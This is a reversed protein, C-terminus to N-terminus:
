GVRYRQVLAEDLQLGFGPTEPVRMAGGVIPPRNVWLEQWVPDREPDAFCEVFSGHPIGSLMHLAIQPEEHHAIRVGSLACAAAARRWETIGGSESADFNVYDVADADLMRRVGHATFECQGANIPIATANRVRAMMTVDDYWHCPEEFWVINLPEILRAFRIADPVSWGRNADVVLTFDPGAGERAAAVRAADAEPTLGGVKVKCGAMGAEERLWRMEEALSALTRGERYYGGISIIPLSTKCGGLLMSVSMNCLKGFVDWLATDVCAIAEMAVKRDRNRETIRHMRAWLYEIRRPDEGIVLPALEERIIRVIEPGHDRNDGNWVESVVGQDTALRTIITSRKLVTYTSGGFDRPLPIDIPIVDIGTIRM